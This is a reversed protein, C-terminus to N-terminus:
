VRRALQALSLASLARAVTPDSFLHFPRLFVETDWFLPRTAEGTLGKAAISSRKATLRPPM